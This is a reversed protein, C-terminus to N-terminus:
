TCPSAYLIPAFTFLIAVAAAYAALAGASELFRVPASNDADSRQKRQLRVFGLAIVTGAACFGVFLGILVVRLFSLGGLSAELHWGWGCGISQVSYLVIFAISWWVFGVILLLIKLSPDSVM